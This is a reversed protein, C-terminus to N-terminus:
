FPKTKKGVIQLTQGRKYAICKKLPLNAMKAMWTPIESTNSPKWANLVLGKAILKEHRIQAQWPGAGNM